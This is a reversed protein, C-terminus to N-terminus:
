LGELTHLNSIITNPEINMENIKDNLLKVEDSLNNRIVKSKTFKNEKMSQFIVVGIKIQGKSDYLPVGYMNNSKMNRKCKKRFCWKNDITPSNEYHKEDNLVSYVYEKPNDIIYRNVKNYNTSHSYRGVSFFKNISSSYLFITVRESESNGLRNSMEKLEYDLYGSLFSRYSKVAEFLNKRDDKFQMDVYDIIKNIIFIIVFLYIFYEKHNTIYDIVEKNNKFLSNYYLLLLPILGVFIDTIIKLITTKKM